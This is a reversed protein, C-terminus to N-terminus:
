CQRTPKDVVVDGNENNNVLEGTDNAADCRAAATTGRPVRVLRDGQVVLEWDHPQPWSEALLRRAAGRQQEVQKLMAPNAAQALLDAAEDGGLVDAFFAFVVVAPAAKCDAETAPRLVRAGDERLPLIREMLARMEEPDATLAAAAIRRFQRGYSFAM